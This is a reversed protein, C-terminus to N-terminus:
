RQFLVLKGASSTCRHTKEYLGKEHLISEGKAKAEKETAAEFSEDLAKSGDKEFVTLVYVGM